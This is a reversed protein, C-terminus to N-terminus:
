RQHRPITSKNEKKFERSTAWQDLQEARDVIKNLVMTTVGGVVWAAAQAAIPLMLLPFFTKDLVSMYAGGALGVVTAAREMVRAVRNIPRPPNPNVHGDTIVPLLERLTWHSNPESALWNFFGHIKKTVDRVSM